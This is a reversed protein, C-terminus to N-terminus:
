LNQTKSNLKLLRFALSYQLTIGSGAHYYDFVLAQNKILKFTFISSM